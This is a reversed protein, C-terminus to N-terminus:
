QILVTHTSYEPRPRATAEARSSPRARARGRRATTRTRCTTRPAPPAPPHAPPAPQQDTREVDAHTRAHTRAHAHTRTDAARTHRAHTHRRPQTHTYTAPVVLGLRREQLLPAGPPRARATAVRTAVRRVQTAVRRVANCRASSANCCASSRQLAGLQTAVRRAAYCSGNCRPAPRAQLAASRRRLVARCPRHLASARSLCFLVLARMVDADGVAAFAAVAAAAALAYRRRAIGRELGSGLAGPCRVPVPVPARIPHHRWQESVDLLEVPGRGGAGAARGSAGGAYLITLIYVDGV